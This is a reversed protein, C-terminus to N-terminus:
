SALSEKQLKPTMFRWEPHEKTFREVHANSISMDFKVSNGFLMICKESLLKAGGMGDVVFGEGRYVLGEDGLAKIVTHSLGNLTMVEKLIDKHYLGCGDKVFYMSPKGDITIQCVKYLDHPNLDKIEVFEM